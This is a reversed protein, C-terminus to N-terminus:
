SKSAEWQAALEVVLKTPEVVDWRRRAMARMKECKERELRAKVGNDAVSVDGRQRGMNSYRMGNNGASTHAKTGDYSNNARFKKSDTQYKLGNRPEIECDNSAMHSLNARAEAARKINESKRTQIANLKKMQSKSLRKGNADRM